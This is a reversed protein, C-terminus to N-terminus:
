LPRAGAGIRDCIYHENECYAVLESNVFELIRDKEEEPYLVHVNAGADLTFCVNSGTEKRFDWIKRIVQLTGPSMLLYYPRGTMMIAHLTLAESEVIEIFGKVDGERLIHKLESLHEGAQQFRREAFPHGHMLGHGATSSVQKKGKDVLLVTDQYTSFVPHVEDPYRTGYLDTSGEIEPHSGWVVLGGEVSRCASGSGLRALFSAKRYFDRETIGPNMKREMSMLCLALASMGSASSAIGSSHPFSNSTEITFHYDRLFPLYKEIREFFRNIKPKFDERSRGEFLLEFSFGSAPGERRAFRLTTTTACTDLTFSVSPNAPLQEGRKGWYKVLAINSPSRWTFAGAEIADPYRSPMFDKETM